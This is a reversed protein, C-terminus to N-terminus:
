TQEHRFPNRARSRLRAIVLEYTWEPQYTVTESEAWANAFVKYMDDDPNMQVFPAIRASPAASRFIAPTIVILLKDAGVRATLFCIELPPQNDADWLVLTILLGDAELARMESSFREENVLHWPYEVLGPLQHEPLADAHHAHVHTDRQRYVLFRRAAGDRGAASGDSFEGYKFRQGRASHGLTVIPALLFDMKNDPDNLWDLATMLDGGSPAIM